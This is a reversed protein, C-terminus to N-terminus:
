GGLQHCKSAELPYNSKSSTMPYPGWSPTLPFSWLKLLHGDALWSSARVLSWLHQCGAILRELLTFIVNRNNLSGLRHSSNLCEGLSWLLRRRGWWRQWGYSLIMIQQLKLLFMKLTGLREQQHLQPARCNRHVFIVRLPYSWFCIVWKQWNYLESQPSHNDVALLHWTSSSIVTCSRYPYCADGWM